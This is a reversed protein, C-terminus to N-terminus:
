SNELVLSHFDGLLFLLADISHSKICTNHPDFPLLTSPSGNSCVKAHLVFFLRRLSCERGSLSKELHEHGLDSVFLLCCFRMVHILSVITSCICVVTRVDFSVM